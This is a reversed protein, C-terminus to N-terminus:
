SDIRNPRGDEEPLVECPPRKGGGTSEKPLSLVELLLQDTVCFTSKCHRQKQTEAYETSHFTGQGFHSFKDQLSALLEVQSIHM